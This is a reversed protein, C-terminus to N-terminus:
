CLLHKKLLGGFNSKLQLSSSHQEIAKDKNPHDFNLCLTPPLCIETATSLRVKAPQQCEAMVHQWLETVYNFTKAKPVKRVIYGGKKYKPYQISFVQKGAATTAQARGTNEYYHLAALKVRCEM